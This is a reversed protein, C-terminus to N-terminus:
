SFKGGLEGAVMLQARASLRAALHRDHNPSSRQRGAGRDLKARRCRASKCGCRLLLPLLRVTDLIRPVGGREDCQTACSPVHHSSQALVRYCADRPARARGTSTRAKEMASRCDGRSRRESPWGAICRGRQM